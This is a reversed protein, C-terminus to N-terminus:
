QKALMKHGLHTTNKRSNVYGALSYSFVKSIQKKSINKSTEEMEIFSKIRIYGEYIELLEQRYIARSLNFNNQLYKASM